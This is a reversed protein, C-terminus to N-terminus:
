CDGLANDDPLFVAASEVERLLRDTHEADTLCLPCADTIEDDSAVSQWDSPLDEVRDARIAAPQFRKYKSVAIVIRQPIRVTTGCRDCRWETTRM